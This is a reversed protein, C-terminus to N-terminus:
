WLMEGKSVAELDSHFQKDISMRGVGPVDTALPSLKVEFTGTAHTM